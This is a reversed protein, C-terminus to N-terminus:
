VALAKPTLNKALVRVRRNQTMKSPFFRRTKKTSMAVSTELGALATRQLSTVFLMEPSQDTRAPSPNNKYLTHKIPDETIAPRLDHRTRAAECRVGTPDLAEAEQHLDGPRGQEQAGPATRDDAARRRRTMYFPCDRGSACKGHKLWQYCDGKKRLVEEAVYAAKGISRLAEDRLQNRRRTELYRKVLTILYKYNREEHGVPLREYYAM